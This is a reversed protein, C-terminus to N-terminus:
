VNNDKKFKKIKLEDETIHLNKDKIDLRGGKIKLYKDIISLTLFILAGIGSLVTVIESFHIKALWHLMNITSGTIITCNSFVRIDHNALIQTVPKFM